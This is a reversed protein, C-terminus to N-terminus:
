HRAFHRMYICWASFIIFVSEVVVKGPGVAARLLVGAAVALEQDAVHWEDGAVVVGDGLLLVLLLLAGRRDEVHGAHGLVGVRCVQPLVVGVVHVHGLVVIAGDVLIAVGVDLYLM